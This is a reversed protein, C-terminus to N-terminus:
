HSSNLRTSKRDRAFALNIGLRGLSVLVISGLWPEHLSTPHTASTGAVLILALAFNSFLGFGSSRFLLRTMEAEVKQGIVADAPPTVPPSSALAM